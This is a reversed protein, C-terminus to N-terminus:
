MRRGVIFNLPRQQADANLGFIYNRLGYSADFLVPYTAMNSKGTANVMAAVDTYNAFLMASGPSSNSTTPKVTGTFQNNGPTDPYLKVFWKRATLRDPTGGQADVLVDQIKFQSAYQVWTPTTARATVGLFGFATVTDPKNIICGWNAVRGPGAGEVFTVFDCQNGYADLVPPTGQLSAINVKVGWIGFTANRVINFGSQYAQVGSLAWNNVIVPRQLDPMTASDVNGNSIRSPYDGYTPDGYWAIILEADKDLTYRGTFNYNQNAQLLITLSNNLVGNAFNQQIAYDLTKYPAAQTGASPNDNGNNTSVYITSRGPTAGYYVGDSLIMIKNGPQASLPIMQPYIVDQGLVMPRHASHYQDYLLPIQNNM